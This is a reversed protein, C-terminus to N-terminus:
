NEVKKCIILGFLSEAATFYFFPFFYIKRVIYLQLIFALNHYLDDQFTCIESQEHNTLPVDRSVKLLFRVLILAVYLKRAFGM